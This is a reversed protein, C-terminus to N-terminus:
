GLDFTGYGGAQIMEKVRHFCCRGYDQVDDVPMYIRIQPQTYFAFFRDKPDHFWDRDAVMGGAGRLGLARTLRYLWRIGLPRAIESFPYQMLGGGSRVELRDPFVSVERVDALGEVRSPVFSVCRDAEQETM